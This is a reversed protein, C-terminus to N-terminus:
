KLHKEIETAPFYSLGLENTEKQLKNMSITGINIFEVTLIEWGNYNLLQDSISSYRSIAIERPALIGEALEIAVKIENNALALDLIKDEEGLAYEIIEIAQNEDIAINEHREEENNGNEQETEVQTEQSQQNNDNNETTSSDKTSCGFLLLLAIFFTFFLKKM